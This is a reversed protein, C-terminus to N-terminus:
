VNFRLFFKKKHTPVELVILPFYIIKWPYSGSMFTTITEIVKIVHESLTLEWESWLPLRHTRLNRQQIKGQLQYNFLGLSCQLGHVYPLLCLSWPCQWLQVKKLELLLFPKHMHSYNKKTTSGKRISIVELPQSCHQESTPENATPWSNNHM